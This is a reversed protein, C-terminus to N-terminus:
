FRWVLEARIDLDNRDDAAEIRSDYRSEAGLRLSLGSEEDLLCDWAARVTVRCESPQELEPYYDINALIKQRANIARSVSLFFAGEPVWEQRISGFERTASLGIRFLSDTKDDKLIQYRGGGALSLRYDFDRFEDYEGAGRFFVGSLNANGTAWDQTLGNVMRNESEVDNTQAYAYDTRVATTHGDYTKHVDFGGRFRSREVTGTSLDAGLHVEGKWQSFVKEFWSPEPPPTPGAIAMSEVKIAEDLSPLAETEPQGPRDPDALATVPATLIGVPVVAATLPGEPGEDARANGAAAIVLAVSLIVMSPFIQRGM